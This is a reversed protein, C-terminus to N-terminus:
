IAQELSEKLQLHMQPFDLAVGYLQTLESSVIELQVPVDLSAYTLLKNKRMQTLKRDNLNLVQITYIGAPNDDIAYIEGSALDYRLYASPDKTTPDLFADEYQNKKRMGCTAKNICSLLMNSYEKSLQGYNSRPKIHEVHCHNSENKVVRECYPCYNKQEAILHKRLVAKIESDFADYNVFDKALDTYECPAQQKNIKLM